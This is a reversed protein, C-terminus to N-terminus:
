DHPLIGREWIESTTTLISEGAKALPINVVECGVCARKCRMKMAM